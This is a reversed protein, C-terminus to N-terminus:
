PCEGLNVVIGGTPAQSACKYFVGGNLVVQQGIFGACNVWNIVSFQGVPITIEWYTEVCPFCEEGQVITPGDTFLTGEQACIEETYESGVFPYTVAQAVGDCDLWSYVSGPLGAPFTLESSICIPADGCCETEQYEFGKAASPLLTQGSQGCFTFADWEGESGPYVYETAIGDCDIYPIVGPAGNNVAGTYTSCTCPPIPPIPPSCEELRPVLYTDTTTDPHTVISTPVSTDLACFEILRPLLEELTGIPTVITQEVEFCDIYTTVASDTVDIGIEYSYCKPNCPDPALSESERLKMQIKEFRILINEEDPLCCYEIKYRKSMMQQYIMESFSCLAAEVISPDCLGTNYGPDVPRPCPVEPPQVPPLCTECDEYCKYVAIEPSDPCSVTTATVLWCGEIEHNTDDALTIVQGDHASLDSQTFISPLIGACDTLEFCPEFPPGPEVSTWIAEYSAGLTPNTHSITGDVAGNSTSDIYAVGNDHYGYYGNQPSYFHCGLIQIPLNTLPVIGFGGGGVEYSRM